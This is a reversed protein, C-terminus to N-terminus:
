FSENGLDIVANSGTDAFTGLDQISLSASFTQGPIESRVIVESGSIIIAPIASSTQVFTAGGLVTLSGPLTLDTLPQIQKQKILPM